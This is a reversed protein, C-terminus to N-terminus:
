DSGFRVQETVKAMSSKRGRDNRNMRIIRNAIKQDISDLVPLPISLKKQRSLKKGSLIIIQLNLYFRYKSNCVESDG